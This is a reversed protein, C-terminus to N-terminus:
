YNISPEQKQKTFAQNQVTEMEFDSQIALNTGGMAQHPGVSVSRCVTYATYTHTSAHSHVTIAGEWQKICMVAM